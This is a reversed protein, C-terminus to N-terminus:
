PEIPQTFLARLGFFKARPLADIYWNRADMKNL